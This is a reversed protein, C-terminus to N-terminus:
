HENHQDSIKPAGRAETLVVNFKRLSMNPLAKHLQQFVGGRLVTELLCRSAADPVALTLVGARIGTVQVGELLEPPLVECLQDQVALLGIRNARLYYETSRLASGLKMPERQRGTPQQPKPTREM